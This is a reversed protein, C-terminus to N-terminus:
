WAVRWRVGPADIAITSAALARGGGDGDVALATARYWGVHPADVELACAACPGDAVVVLGAGDEIRVQVRARPDGDCTRPDWIAELSPPGADPAPETTVPDCGGVLLVLFVFLAVVVFCVLDALRM